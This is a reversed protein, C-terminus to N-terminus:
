ASEAIVALSESFQRNASLHPLVIQDDPAGASVQEQWYRTFAGAAALRLAPAALAGTRRATAYQENQAQLAREIEAGLQPLREDSPREACEVTFVYGPPEADRPAATARTLELGVRTSALLLAATVQAEQLQEGALSCSHERHRDFTIVPTDQYFDVVRLVDPSLFRYLGATTTVILSYARGVELQDCTLPTAADLRALDAEPLFEYFASSVALVGGQQRDSLPVSGWVEASIYGHERIPVPGYLRALRQAALSLTGGRWCSIARLGRWALAPLLVDHNQSRMEALEDARRPNPKLRPIIAGRVAPDLYYRRNLTGARIDAILDAAWREMSEALLCLVETNPILLAAIDQELALRLALYYKQELDTIRALEAPLASFRRVLAPQRRALFGSLAGYPTGDPMTGAADNGFWFLIKGTQQGLHDGLFRAAHMQAPALADNISALTAPLARPPGGAGGSLVYFIPRQMTLQPPQGPELGRQMYPRLREDTNIPVEHQFSSISRLSAFQHEQGYATEANQALMELLKAQQTERPARMAAELGSIDWVQQWFPQAHPAHTSFFDL